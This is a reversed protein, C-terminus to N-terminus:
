PTHIYTHIFKGSFFNVITLSFPLSLHFLYIFYKCYIKFLLNSLYLNFVGRIITAAIANFFRTSRIEM